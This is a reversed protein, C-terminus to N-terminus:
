CRQQHVVALNDECVAQCQSKHSGGGRILCFGEESRLTFLMAGVRLTAAWGVSQSSSLCEPCDQWSSTTQLTGSPFHRDICCPQPFCPHCLQKRANGLCSVPLTFHTQKASGTVAERRPFFCTSSVLKQRYGNGATDLDTKTSNSFDGADMVVPSERRYSPLRQLASCVSSHM